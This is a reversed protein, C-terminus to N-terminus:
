QKAALEKISQLTDVAVARLTLCSHRGVIDYV